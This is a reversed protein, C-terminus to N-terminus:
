KAMRRVVALHKGKPSAKPRLQNLLSHLQRGSQVHMGVAEPTDLLQALKRAEEYMAPREKALPYAAWEEIVSLEVPGPGTDPKPELPKSSGTARRWRQREARTLPRPKGDDTFTIVKMGRLRSRVDVAVRESLHGFETCSNLASLHSNSGILTLIVQV